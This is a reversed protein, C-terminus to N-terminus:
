FWSFTVLILYSSVLCSIDETSPGIVLSRRILFVLSSPAENFRFLFSIRVVSLVVMVYMANSSNLSLDASLAPPCSTLIAALLSVALSAGSVEGHRKVPVDNELELNGSRAVVGAVCNSHFKKSLCRKVNLRDLASIPGFRGFSAEVVSRAKM